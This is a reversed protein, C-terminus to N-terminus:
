MKAWAINVIGNAYSNVQIKYHTGDNDLVVYNDGVVMSASSSGTTPWTTVNALCGSGVDVIYTAVTGGPGSTFEGAVNNFTMCPSNVGPCFQYGAGNAGGINANVVGAVAPCQVGTGCGALFCAGAVIGVRKLWQKM